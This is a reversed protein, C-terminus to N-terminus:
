QGGVGRREAPMGKRERSAMKKRRREVVKEARKEGLGEFRRELVRRKMEGKKLFWVRKGKGVAEAEERRHARVVEREAEKAEQAKRRSEMSRLARKLKEKDEDVNTNRISEKLAHM